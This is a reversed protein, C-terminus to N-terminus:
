KEVKSLITKIEKMYYILQDREGSTLQALLHAVQQNSAENLVKYEKKGAESLFLFVSRADKSSRKKFLLKEKELKRLIRSIYAKDVGLSTVIDTATLGEQHYIEYLVRVEPLTFSSSLIHKDLLGIVSTYFRNFARMQSIHETNM